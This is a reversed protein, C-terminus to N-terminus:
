LAEKNRGTSPSAARRRLRQVFEKQKECGDRVPAVTKVRSRTPAPMREFVRVLSFAPM